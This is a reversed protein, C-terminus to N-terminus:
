RDIWAPHPMDHALLRRAALRQVLRLKMAVPLVHRLMFARMASKTTITKTMQRTQAIIKRAIPLRHNEYENEKGDCILWALWAADGVGTNMGRAGAPSHVHAADGALFVRGKQLRQAHHFAISFDSTWGVEAVLPALDRHKEVAPFSGILRVIGGPLPLRGVVGDDMVNALATNSPGEEKLKVDALSFTTALKDGEFAIGSRERVVSRVGDCGAIIKGQVQQKVGDKEFFLVPQDGDDDLDTVQCNWEVQQDFDALRELLLRETNGQPLSLIFPFAGGATSLDVSFRHDGNQDLKVTAIKLGQEILRPTVGSPGFITLSPPLIGLARSQEVPRPGSSRDFVRVRKGRRVLELALTLGTPGAGVILCDAVDDSVAM